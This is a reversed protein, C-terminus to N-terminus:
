ILSNLHLTRVFTSPGRQVSVKVSTGSRKLADQLQWLAFGSVPRGDIATIHDGRRFEAESAPTDPVIGNVVMTRFDDGVAELLLGSADALFPDSLHENPELTVQKRSYDIILTFRRLINGGLNVSIAENALSGATDRSLAAVPAPVAYPGIHFATLRAFVESPKSGGVGRDQAAFTKGVAALLHYKDVLPSSVITGGAGTDITFRVPIPAQGPVIMSGEIQPDYAGYLRMPLTTGSGRYRYTAPDHLAVVGKAYDIEVVFPEIIDYGLAGYIPRGILPWLGAMSIATGQTTTRRVGRPLAIDLLGIKAAMNMDSGAGSTHMQSGTAIGLEAIRESAIVTNTSGTDLAFLHPGKGNVGADFFIANALLEFPFRVEAAGNPLRATGYPAASDTQAILTMGCNSCAGPRDFVLTDCSLGCPPCVYKADAAMAGTTLLPLAALSLV